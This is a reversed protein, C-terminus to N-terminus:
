IDLLKRRKQEFDSFNGPMQIARLRTPLNRHDSCFVLHRLGECGFSLFRDLTRRITERWGEIGRIPVAKAALGVAHEIVNQIVGFINSIARNPLRDWVIYALTKTARQRKM